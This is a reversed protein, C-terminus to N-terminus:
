FLSIFMKVLRVLAAFAVWVLAFTVTLVFLSLLRINLLIMWSIVPSALPTWFLAVTLLLTLGCYIPLAGLSGKIDQPSLSIHLAVSLIVLLGLSSTIWNEGFAAPIGKILGFVGEALAGFNFPADGSPIIASTTALYESWLSPFCLWLSLVIVGLGSFLPGIGVFLNGFRSWVNSKKYGHEVFGYVGNEPKPSWLKMRTIRHGFVVCMLAHGLEHVPTGIISTAYFWGKSGSGILRAFGRSILHILLGCGVFLGLTGVLLELWYLLFEVVIM